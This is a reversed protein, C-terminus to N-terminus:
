YCLRGHHLSSAGKYLMEKHLKGSVNKVSGKHLDEKNKLESFGSEAGRLGSQRAYVLLMVVPFVAFWHPHKGGSFHTYKGTTKRLFVTSRITNFNEFFIAAANGL